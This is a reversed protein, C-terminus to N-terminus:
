QGLLLAKSLEAELKEVGTGSDLVAWPLDQATDWRQYVYFGIDLHSKEVAGKFGALSIDDTSALVEAVKRDGRALVGQVESWALSEAKLRVGQPSLRHRLVELRHGLVDKPAMPLWQFPTGGKPVFPALNLDLRCGTQGRDLIRKCKLTLDIIGLIDEDTESPLGIMFYLKLRKIGKQASVRSAAKLIDEETIGKKVLQRLRESGAEPAITVTRSGGRAIQEVLREPLPSARLSSLSFGSGIKLFKELLEELGPYDSVVPGILGLRKRYKLGQRAQRTLEEQSHFRMPSFATGVLCFRCGHPCGREVEMLYLNGFETDPTLITSTVPFDDLDSVWQRLVAKGSHYLPVYVGPVGALAKLLESRKAGVGESLVSIVSPLVAEAEGVCFFDFFPALPMPNAVICPGGAMVLPHRDERESSYLPIGGHKLMQIINFYDLEYTVSFALVSFDSLPRRSELSLNPTKKEHHGKEWFVRECVINNHSNFLRYVTHFGLNSMGVYYSNPYILAVPLRGGWDKFITGEEL